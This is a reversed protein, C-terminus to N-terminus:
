PTTTTTGTGGEAPAETAGSEAGAAPQDTAGGTPDGGQTFWVAIAVVALIAIIVVWKTNNSM